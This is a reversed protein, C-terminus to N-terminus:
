RNSRAVSRVLAEERSIDFRRSDRIDVEDGGARVASRRLVERDGGSGRDELREEPRDGAGADYYGFVGPHGSTPVLEAEKFGLARLDDRLMEAMELVGDNQASISRQRVWRSSFAEDTAFEFRPRPDDAAAVTSFLVLLIAFFRIM